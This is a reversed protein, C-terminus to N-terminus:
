GGWPRDRDLSYFCRPRPGSEQFFERDALAIGGRSKLLANVEDVNQGHEIPSLPSPPDWQLKALMPCGRILRWVCSPSFPPGSVEISRLTQACPSALVVDIAGDTLNGSIDYYHLELHELRLGECITRLADDDLQNGYGLRLKELTPQAQVLSRYFQSGGDFYDPLELAALAGFGRALRLISEPTIVTESGLDLSKLRSALPAVLLLDVLQPSVIREILEVETAHVCAQLTRQIGDWRVPGEEEGHRRNFDVCVLRPFHWQYSEAPSLPSPIWVTDLLPCARGLESAFADLNAATTIPNPVNGAASLSTLLPCARCLELLAPASFYSSSSGNYTVDRLQGNTSTMFEQLANASEHSEVTALYINQCGSGLVRGVAAIKQPSGGRVFSVHRARKHQPVARRVADKCSRSACRLALLERLNPELFQRNTFLAVHALLELPLEDLNPM